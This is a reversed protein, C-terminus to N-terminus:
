IDKNKRNIDIRKVFSQYGEYLTAHHVYPWGKRLCYEKVIPAIIPYLHGCVNPFLHHEIQYNIGSFMWTWVLNDNMFNGSNCIQRKAWDEGDYHNEVKTEYFDHDGFVNIYYMGNLATFYLVSPVIGIKYFFLIKLSVVFISFMNHININKPILMKNSGANSYNRTISTLLYYFVQLLYQGPLFFCVTNVTSKNDFSSYLKDDPDYKSGTFSHHAYVHHYFWIIPNWLLWNQIINGVMNNIKPYRSIAYHSSDHLINFAASSEIIGIAVSVLHRICWHMNSSSSLLCFLLCIYVSVIGTNLICWSATAKISNRDPLVKKVLNSLENYSTFDYNILEEDNKIPNDDNVEYKDLILDISKKDSFAHYSEYLATCDDLGKSLLLIKMGGPHKEIFDTLDYQKGHIRWM